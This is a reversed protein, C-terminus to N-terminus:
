IFPDPVIKEGDMMSNKNLYFETFVNIIPLDLYSLTKNIYINDVIQNISIFKFKDPYKKEYKECMIYYEDWYMELASNMDPADPYKPYCIDWINRQYFVGEHNMWHNVTGQGGGGKVRIFSDITENKSRYLAIFRSNPITEIIKDVYPLWWHSVDGVIPFLRGLRLMRNMHFDFVSLDSNWGLLPPHEHSIFSGGM